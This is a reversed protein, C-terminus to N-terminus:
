KELVAEAKKTRQTLAALEDAVSARTLGGLREVVQELRANQDSLEAIKAKSGTLAQARERLTAHAGKLEKAVSDRESRLAVQEAKAERLM